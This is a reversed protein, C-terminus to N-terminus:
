RYSFEYHLKFRVRPSPSGEFRSLPIETGRFYISLDNVRSGSMSTFWLNEEKKNEGKSWKKSRRNKRGLVCTLRIKWFAKQKVRNVKKTLKEINEDM